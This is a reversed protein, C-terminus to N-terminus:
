LGDVESWYDQEGCWDRHGEGAAAGRCTTAKFKEISM